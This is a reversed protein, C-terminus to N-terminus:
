KEKDTSNKTRSIGLAEIERKQKERESGWRINAAKTAIESRRKRGLKEKSLRSLTAFHKSGYRKLTENGGQKGIGEFYKSTPKNMRIHYVIALFLDIQSYGRQGWTRKVANIPISCHIASYLNMVVQAPTVFFLM